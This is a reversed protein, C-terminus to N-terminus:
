ASSLLDRPGDTYEPLAKVKERQLRAVYAGRGKEGKKVAPTSELACSFLNTM